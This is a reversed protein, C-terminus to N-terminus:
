FSYYSLYADESPSASLRSIGLTTLLFYLACPHMQFGVGRPLKPTQSLHCM